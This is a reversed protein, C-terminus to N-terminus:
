YKGNKEGEIPNGEEDFYFFGLGKCKPCVTLEEYGITGEGECNKCMKVEVTESM